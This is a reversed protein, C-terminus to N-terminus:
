ARNLGDIQEVKKKLGALVGASIQDADGASLVLLVDGSKLQALLYATAQQLDPVYIAKQGPIREVIEAASFSNSHERAGYVQTVVVRDANQFSQCFEPLLSLTRTFTHPQWVAWLCQQPYRDRAAALTARIETPHHAYDDIIAIGDVEGQLDFRRGTGSFRSLAQAAKQPDLGMRHATGLAALANYLNHRGPVQLQVRGLTQAEGGSPQFLATFSAGGDANTEVAVARYHAAPLTGYTWLAPQSPLQALVAQTGEDELNALLAGDPKLHGIFDVFAQRYDELTPFCDPHDYELTTLVILDPLLGLFMHDYEDAEIVFFAGKGAHANQGLDKSVGGIIYSPDMGLQSFVWATMATTTTKGHTGAIAIGSQDSMLQGLFESRKLVPIGAARAAQVEPNNDPIASSRVVLDAGRINEPAHGVTVNVGALMLEQALPSLVRDSGSVEYGSERLVRAIASLGSGGIGILHIHTM